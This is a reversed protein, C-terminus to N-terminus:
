KSYGPDVLAVLHDCHRDLLSDLQETCFTGSAVVRRDSCDPDIFQERLDSGVAMNLEYYTSKYGFSGVMGCCEVDSVVVDYVQKSLVSVTHEAVGVTRQQCHSHYAINAEDETTSEAFAGADAGNELMGYLYEFLEYSNAASM